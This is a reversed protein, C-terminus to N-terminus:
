SGITAAPRVHFSAGSVIYDRFVKKGEGSDVAKQMRDIALKAVDKFRKSQAPIGLRVRYKSEQYRDKAIEKARDLNKEKTSCRIWRGDLKFRARWKESETRRTLVVDGDLVTVSNPSLKPMAVAQFNSVISTVVL